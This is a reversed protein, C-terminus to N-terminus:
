DTKTLLFLVMFILSVVMTTVVTITPILQLFSLILSIATTVFGAVALSSLFNGRGERSVERFFTLSAIVLFIVMLFIPYFLPYDLNPFNLIGQLDLNTINNELTQYVQFFPFQM